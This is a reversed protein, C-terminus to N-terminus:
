INRCEILIKKIRKKFTIITVNKSDVKKSLENYMKIFKPFFANKRKSTVCREVVIDCKFRTNYNHHDFNRTVRQSLYIPVLKKEVKHMITLGHLLRREHMNLTDLKKLCHSVHDYKRLGFIFRFCSNQVKQIKQKLYDPMNQYVIDCYNFQSLVYSECIRIKADQSLFKKFRYVLKLKGYAKGITQNVHKTWSLVEDFTIGLNRVHTKREIVKNNILIPSIDIQKLKALNIKSGIIIYNSKAANLKLCNRDSFQEVAELDDKINNIVNEVNNVKSHYYLQTDDAYMHYNGNSIIKNIDSVLVTFFLPGLISGQPVGNILTVWRSESTSTKVKQIRNTLYSLIWALADDKFGLAKLKALILRHNACDFAKSYDLLILFTVLSRDMAKSIDDVINLLATATSHYQKYASQLTDFLVNNSLYNNIQYCCTKECIKSFVSLLSIPRFDSESTPNEKKPIPKVIAKKWNLPFYRYKYSNNVIYTIAFASYEISLKVFYASINDSGCSNTKLSKVIKKVDQETVECFSFVPELSQKLIDSIEDTVRSEDVKQNNNFTFTENLINADYSCPNKSLKSQVINFRKLAKYFQKAIKVKSNIEDNFTRFKLKRKEQNVKNRLIKFSEYIGPDKNINFSNKYADRDRMLKKINDNIWPAPPHKAKFTKFPANKTIVSEFINELVTVQRDLDCEEIAFINGWPALEMDKKFSEESFNRLDRRTIM